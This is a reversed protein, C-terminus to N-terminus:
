HMYHMFGFYYLLYSFIFRLVSGRFTSYLSEEKSLLIVPKHCGKNTYKEKCMLDIIFGLVNQKIRQM